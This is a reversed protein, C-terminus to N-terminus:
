TKEVLRCCRRLRRYWHCPPYRARPLGRLRARPESFYRAVNTPSSTYSRMCTVIRMVSNMTVSASSLLKYLAYLNRCPFAVQEVYLHKRLITFLKAHVRWLTQSTVSNDNSMQSPPRYHYNPRAARSGNTLLVTSWGMHSITACMLYTM